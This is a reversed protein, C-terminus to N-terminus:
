LDLECEWLYCTRQPNDTEGVFLRDDIWVLDHPRFCTQGQEDRVPGLVRCAGSGRDYTFIATQNDNGGVGFMLGQPGIVLGPLRNSPLPRALYVVEATKPDLRFLEGKEGGIYLYGDRGNIMCDIPGAGHYMLSECGTPLGHDIFNVENTAPDYRFLNHASGWTGWYGGDDDVAGIHTISGMYRRYVVEDKDLSYAFFDFVPYTMGYIMGRRSDLTITQIYDPPAPICLCEFKGSTPDFRFVKGGPAQHRESVDHLLSTAGYLMGDDGLELGRHIKVEYQEGFEAYNMSELRGTAPDFSYLLDTAFSTTGCYLLRRQPHYRLCTFAYYGKRFEADKRIQRAIDDVVTSTPRVYQTLSHAKVSVLKM